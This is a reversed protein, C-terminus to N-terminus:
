SSDHGGRSAWRGRKGADGKGTESAGDDGDSAGEGGRKKHQIKEFANWSKETSQVVKQAATDAMKQLSSSWFGKESLPNANKDKMFGSDRLIKRRVVKGRRGTRKKDKGNSVLFHVLKTEQGQSLLQNEQYYQALTHRSRGKGGGQVHALKAMKKVLETFARNKRDDARQDKLARQFLRASGGGGHPVGVGTRRRAEAALLKERAVRDKSYDLAQDKLALALLKADNGSTRRKKQTSQFAMEGKSYDARQDKLALALLKADNGHTGEAGGRAGAPHTAREAASMQSRVRRLESQQSSLAEKLLGAMSTHSRPSSSIHTGPSHGTNPSLSREQRMEAKQSLLAEKLLGAMSEHSRSNPARRADQANGNHPSLSREKQMEAKQSLVAEKFLHSMSEQSLTVPRQVNFVSVALVTFAALLVAARPGFEPHM